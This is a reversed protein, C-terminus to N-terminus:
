LIYSAKDMLMLVICIILILLFISCKDKKTEDGMTLFHDSGQALADEVVDLPFYLLNIVLVFPFYKLSFLCFGGQAVSAHGLLDFSWVLDFSQILGFSWVLYKILSSHYHADDQDDVNNVDDPSGKLDNTRKVSPVSSGVKSVKRTLKRLRMLLSRRDPLPNSARKGLGLPVRLYAKVNRLLPSNAWAGVLTKEKATLASKSRPICIGMSAGNILSDLEPVIETFIGFGLLGVGSKGVRKEQTGKTGVATVTCGRRVLVRGFWEGWCGM